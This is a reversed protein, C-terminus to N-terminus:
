RFPVIPLGGGPGDSLVCIVFWVLVALLFIGGLLKLSDILEIRSRGPVLAAITMWRAFVLGAVGAAAFCYWSQLFERWGLTRDIAELRDRAATAEPPLWHYLTQLQGRTWERRLTTLEELDMERGRHPERHHIVPEPLDM